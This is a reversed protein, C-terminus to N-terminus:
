VGPGPAVAVTGGRLDLAVLAVLLPTLRDRFPKAQPERAILELLDVPPLASIRVPEKGFRVMDERERRVDTRLADAVRALTATEEMAILRYIAFAGVEGRVRDIFALDLLALREHMAMGPLASLAALAMGLTMPVNHGQLARHLNGYDLGSRRRLQNINLGRAEMAAHLREHFYDM